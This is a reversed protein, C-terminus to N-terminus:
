PNIHPISKALFIMNSATTHLAYSAMAEINEHANGNEPHASANRLEVTTNQIHLKLIGFLNEIQDPLHIFKGTLIGSDFVGKLKKGLPGSITLGAIKAIEDLMSELARGCAIMCEMYEQKRYAKFATIFHEHSDTLDHEILVELCPEFIKSASYTTDYRIFTDNTYEYGINNAKLIYNINSVVEEIKRKTRREYEAQFFIQLCDLYEEVSLSEGKIYDTFFITERPIIRHSTRYKNNKLVDADIGHAIFIKNVINVSFESLNFKDIGLIISRIQHKCAQPIEEYELPLKKTLREERAKKVSPLNEHWDM